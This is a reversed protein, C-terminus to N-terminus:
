LKKLGAFLDDRGGRFKKDLQEYYRQLYFQKERLQLEATEKKHAAEQVLKEVKRKAKQLSKLHNQLEAMQLELEKERIILQQYELNNEKIAHHAM